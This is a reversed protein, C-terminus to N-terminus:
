AHRHTVQKSISLDNCVNDLVILELRKASTENSKNKSFWNSFLNGILGRKGPPDQSTKLGVEKIQAIDEGLLYEQEYLLSIKELALLM